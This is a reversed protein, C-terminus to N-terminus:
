LESILESKFDGQQSSLLLDFRDVLKLGVSQAIDVTDKEFTQYNRVDAINLACFKNPKLGIRVNDITKRLFKEKWNVINSYKLYSQTKEDSYKEELHKLHEEAKDYNGRKNM